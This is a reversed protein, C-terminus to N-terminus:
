DAPGHATEEEETRFATQRRGRRLPWGAADLLPDIRRKWTLWESEIGPQPARNAL